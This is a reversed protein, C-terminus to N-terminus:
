IANSNVYGIVKYSNVRKVMMHKQGKYAVGYVDDAIRDMTIKDRQMSAPTNYRSVLDVKKNHTSLKKKGKKYTVSVNCFYIPPLGGAVEEQVEESDM